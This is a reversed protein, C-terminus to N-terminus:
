ENSELVLDKLSYIRSYDDYDDSSVVVKITQSNKDTVRTILIGDSDLEVTRGSINNTVTITPNEVDPVEM